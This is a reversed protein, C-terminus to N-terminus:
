FFDCKIHPNNNIPMLMDRGFHSIIVSKVPIFISPDVNQSDIQKEILTSRLIQTHDMVLLVM